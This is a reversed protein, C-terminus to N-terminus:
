CSGGDPYCAGGFVPPETPLDKIRKVAEEHEEDTMLRINAFDEATCCWDASDFPIEEIWLERPVGDPYNPPFPPGPIPEFAM